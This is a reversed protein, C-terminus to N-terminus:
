PAIDTDINRKMYCLAPLDYFGLFVFDLLGAACACVCLCVCLSLSLSACGVGGRVGFEPGSDRCHEGRGTKWIVARVYDGGTEGAGDEM